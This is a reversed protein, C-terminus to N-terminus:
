RSSQQFLRRHNTYRLKPRIREYGSSNRIFLLPHHLHKKMLKWLEYRNDYHTSLFNAIASDTITRNKNDYIFKNVTQVFTGIPASTSGVM